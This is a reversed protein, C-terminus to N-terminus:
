TLRLRPKDFNETDLLDARLRGIRMHKNAPIWVGRGPSDIRPIWSDEIRDVRYQGCGSRVGRGATPAKSKRSPDDIPAVRAGRSHHGVPEPLVMEPASENSRGVVKAMEANLWRM